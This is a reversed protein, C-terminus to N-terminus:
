VAGVKRPYGLRKYRCLIAAYDAVNPSYTATVSASSGGESVSSVSQVGAVLRAALMPVFVGDIIQRPCTTPQEDSYDYNFDDNIYAGVDAIVMCLLTGPKLSADEKGAILLANSEIADMDTGNIYYAM